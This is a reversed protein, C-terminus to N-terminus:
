IRKEKKSVRGMRICDKNKIFFRWDFETNHFFEKKCYIRNPSKQLFSYFNFLIKYIKKNSNITLTFIFRHVPDKIFYKYVKLLINM